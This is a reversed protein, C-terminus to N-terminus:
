AFLVGHVKFWNFESYDTQPCYPLGLGARNSLVNMEGGVCLHSKWYIFTSFLKLLRGEWRGLWHAGEKILYILGGRLQSGSGGGWGWVIGTLIHSLSIPPGREGKCDLRCQVNMSFLIFLSFKRRRWCGCNGFNRSSFWTGSILTKLEKWCYLNWGGIKCFLLVTWSQFKLAKRDSITLWRLSYM